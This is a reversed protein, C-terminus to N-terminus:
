DDSLFSRYRTLGLSMSVCSVFQAEATQWTGETDPATLGFLLSLDIAAIAHSISSCVTYQSTGNDSLRHYSSLGSALPTEQLRLPPPSNAAEQASGVPTRDRSHRPTISLIFALNSYHPKKKKLTRFSSSTGSSIDNTESM